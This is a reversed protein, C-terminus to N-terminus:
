RRNLKYLVLMVLGVVAGIILPTRLRDSLEKKGEPPSSLNLSDAIERFVPEAASFDGANARFSFRLTVGGTPVIFVLSTSLEKGSEELIRLRCEIAPHKDRGVTGLIPEGLYRLGDARSRENFGARIKELTETSMDPEGGKEIHVTLCRGDFGKNQWAAVAGFRDVLGLNILTALDAPMTSRMSRALDPTVQQWGEPLVMRYLHNVPEFFVRSHQSTPTAQDIQSALGAASLLMALQILIAQFRPCAASPLM